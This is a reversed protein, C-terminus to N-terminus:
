RSRFIGCSRLVIAEVRCHILRSVVVKRMMKGEPPPRAASVVVEEQGAVSVRVSYKGPFGVSGGRWCCDGVPFSTCMSGWAREAEQGPITKVVVVSKSVGRDEERFATAPVASGAEVSREVRRGSGTELSCPVDAPTESLPVNARTVTVSVCVAALDVPIANLENEVEAEEVKEVEELREVEEVEGGMEERVGRAPCSVPLTSTVEILKVVVALRSVTEREPVPPSSPPILVPSTTPPLKRESVDVSSPGFLIAVDVDSITTPDLLKTLPELGLLRGVGVEVCVLVKLWGPGTSETCEEVPM